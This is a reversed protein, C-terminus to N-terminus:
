LDSNTDGDPEASNVLWWEVAAERLPFSINEPPATLHRGTREGLLLIAHLREGSILPANDGEYVYLPYGATLDLERMFCQQSRGDIDHGFLEARPFHTANEKVWKYLELGSIEHGWDDLLSEPLIKEETGRLVFALRLTYQRGDQTLLLTTREGTRNLRGTTKFRIGIM